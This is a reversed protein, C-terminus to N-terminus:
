WLACVKKFFQISEATPWHKLSEEIFELDPADLEFSQADLELSLAEDFFPRLRFDDVEDVDDALLPLLSWVDGVGDCCKCKSSLFTVSLTLDILHAKEM